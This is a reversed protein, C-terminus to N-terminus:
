HYEQKRVCGAQQPGDEYGIAIFLDKGKRWVRYSIPLITLNHIEVGDVLLAGGKTFRRWLAVSVTLGLALGIVFGIIGTTM